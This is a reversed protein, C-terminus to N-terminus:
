SRQGRRYPHLEGREVGEAHGGPLRQAAHPSRACVGPCVGLGQPRQPNATPSSFLSQLVFPRVATVDAVPKCM